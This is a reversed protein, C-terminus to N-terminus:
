TYDDARAMKKFQSRFIILVASVVFISNIISTLDSAYTMVPMLFCMFTFYYYGGLFYYSLREVFAILLGMLFAVTYMGVFGYNMYAEALYSVGVSTQYDDKGIIGYTRGYLNWIHRSPKDPWLFRPIFIFPLASYSEGQWFPVEKPTKELVVELSDDGARGFGKSISEGLNEEEGEETVETDLDVDEVYKVYVLTGLLDLRDNVSMNPNVYIAKRYDTKVNQILCAVVGLVVPFYLKKYNRQLCSAIFIYGALNGVMTLFGTSLFYWVTSFAVGFRLYKALNENGPSHSCLLLVMDAAMTAFHLSILWTPLSRLFLPVCIVYIAVVLLQIRTLTLLQYKEKEVFRFFIFQRSFYYSTIILITCITLEEIAVAAAPYLESVKLNLNLSNLKGISFTFCHNFLVFALYDFHQRSFCIIFPVLQITMLLYLKSLTYKSNWSDVIFYNILGVVVVLSILTVPNVFPVVNHKKALISM